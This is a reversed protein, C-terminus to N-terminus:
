GKVPVTLCLLLDGRSKGDPKLNGQGALRLRQGGRTGPPVRVSLRRDRGDQFYQVEVTTGSAAAEPSLALSFALDEPSLRSVEPALPNSFLKGKLKKFGDAAAKFPTWFRGPKVKENLRDLIPSQSGLGSRVLEDKIKKLSLKGDPTTFYTLIIDEPDGGPPPLPRGFADYLAEGPSAGVPSPGGAKVTRGAGATGAAGAGGASAASTSNAARTGAFPESAGRGNGPAPGAQGPAPGAGARAGTGADAM